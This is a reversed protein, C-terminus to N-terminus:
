NEMKKMYGVIDSSAREKKTKLSDSSILINCLNCSLTLAVNFMYM